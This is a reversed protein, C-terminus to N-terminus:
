LVSADKEIEAPANRTNIGHESIDRDVVCEAVAESARLKDVRVAPAWTLRASDALSMWIWAPQDIPCPVVSRGIKRVARPDDRGIHREVTLDKGHLILRSM